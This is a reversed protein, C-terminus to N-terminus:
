GQWRETEKVCNNLLNLNSNMSATSPLLSGFTQGQMNENLFKTSSTANYLIFDFGVFAECVMTKNGMTKVVDVQPFKGAGPYSFLWATPVTLNYALWKQVFNNNSTNSGTAAQDYSLPVMLEEFEPNSASAFAPLPLIPISAQSITFNNGYAPFAQKTLYNWLVYTEVASQGSAQIGFFYIATNNGETLNALHVEVINGNYPPLVIVSNYVTINSEGAYQSYSSNFNNQMYLYINQPKPVPPLTLVTYIGVVIIAIMVAFVALFLWNKRAFSQQAKEIPVSQIPKNEM